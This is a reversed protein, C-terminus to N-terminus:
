STKRSAPKVAPTSAEKVLQVRLLDSSWRNGIGILSLWGGFGGFGGFGNFFVDATGKFFSVTRTVKFAVVPLTGAAFVGDAGLGGAGAGVMGNLDAAGDAGPTGLAGAGAGVTCSRVGPAGDTGFDEGSFVSCSAVPAPVAARGFAVTCSPGAM